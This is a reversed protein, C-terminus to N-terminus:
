QALAEHSREGFANKLRLAPKSAINSTSGTEREGRLERYGRREHAVHCLWTQAPISFPIQTKKHTYRISEADKRKGYFCSHFRERVIPSKAHCPRLVHSVLHHSPGTLLSASTTCATPRGICAPRPHSRTCRGDSLVLYPKCFLPAIREEGHLLGEHGGV